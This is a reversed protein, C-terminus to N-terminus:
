LRWSLQFWRPIEEYTGRMIEPLPPGREGDQFRHSIDCGDVDPLGLFSDLGLSDLVKRLVLKAAPVFAHVM